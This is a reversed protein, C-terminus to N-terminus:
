STVFHIKNGHNDMMEAIESGFEYVEMSGFGLM